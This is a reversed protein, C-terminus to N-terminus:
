NILNSKGIASVSGSSQNNSWIHSGAPMTPQQSPDATLWFTNYYYETCKFDTNYRHSGNPASSPRQTTTGSPLVMAGTGNSSMSDLKSATVSGDVMKSSSVSGDALKVNTVAGGYDM